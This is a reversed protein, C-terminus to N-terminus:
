AASPRPLNSVGPGSDWHYLRTGLADLQNPTSSEGKLTGSRNLTDLQTARKSGGLSNSVNRADPGNHPQPSRSAGIGNAARQRNTGGATTTLTSTSRRNRKKFHFHMSIFGTIAVIAVIAVLGLVLGDVLGVILDRDKETLEREIISTADNKVQSRRPTPHFKVPSM